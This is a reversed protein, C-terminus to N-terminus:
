ATVERVAKVTEKAEHTHTHTHTQKHTQKHTRTHAPHTAQEGLDPIVRTSLSVLQAATAATWQWQKQRQKTGRDPNQKYRKRIDTVASCHQVPSCLCRPAQPAELRVYFGQMERQREYFVENSWQVGHAWCGLKAKPKHRAM